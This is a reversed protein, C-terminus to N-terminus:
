APSFPPLKLEFFQDSLQIRTRYLDYHLFNDLTQLFIRSPSLNLRDPSLAFVMFCGQPM